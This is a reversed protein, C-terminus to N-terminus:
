AKTPRRAPRGNGGGVESHQTIWLDIQAEWRAAADAGDSLGDVFTKRTLRLDDFRWPPFNFRELWKQELSLKM